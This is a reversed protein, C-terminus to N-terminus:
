LEERCEENEEKNGMVVARSFEGVGFLASPEESLLNECVVVLCFLFVSFM